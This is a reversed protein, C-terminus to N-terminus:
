CVHRRGLPDPRNAKPWYSKVLDLVHSVYQRSTNSLYKVIKQPAGQLNELLTKDQVAGEESPDVMDIIAQGAAKLEGLEKEQLDKEEAM